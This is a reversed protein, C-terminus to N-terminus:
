PQTGEQPWGAALELAIRTSQYDALADILDRRADLSQRSVVILELLGIQGAQQSKISLQQNDALAPLVSEQLRRIRDELSALRTWLSSVSARADRQAAQREIQVQTLETQAAGIGTSNRKFLPLPVSLTLTTLRERASGPGERGVNLGVTVDPYTSARELKLRAAASTERAALAGARPQNDASALLADLSYGPRQASLEGTATPLSGPPLQLQRALEARAELLQEQIQALQNRAREAEVRAVNADLRTDEGAQRRRQVATATDDFLKLAQTETDARQQLALVRTHREAVDARVRRRVDAIELRLATLAASTAERRYSPQGGVEFTQSLGAGWESRRESGTTSPVSRRTQDVSLQPNNYLWAGADARQGEAASLEAMKLRLTPSAAEALALAEALSLRQQAQAPATEPPLVVPKQAPVQAQGINSLCLLAGALALSKTRM